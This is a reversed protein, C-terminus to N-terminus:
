SNARANMSLTRGDSLWSCVAAPLGGVLGVMLIPWLDNSGGWMFLMILVAPLAATVATGMVRLPKASLMWDVWALLLAPIVAIAYSAVMWDLLNKFGDPATFVVLALPPFLAPFILFRKMGGEDTKTAIKNM